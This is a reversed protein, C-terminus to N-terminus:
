KQGERQKMLYVRLIAAQTKGDPLQGALAMEAAEELSIEALTMLEDDDYDCDTFSLEEALYMHIREGLIAPSPIYLGLYTMRGAIAGTEERLERRAAELPDEDRSDLKGAPIELMVEGVAYRYQYEMIINGNEKLAVICVAGNHGVVERCSTKGNPLEIVDSRVHLVNGDFVSEGSIKKEKLSSIIEKTIELM